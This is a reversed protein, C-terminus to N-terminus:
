TPYTRGKWRNGLKLWGRLGSYILIGLTLIAGPLQLWVTTPAFAQRQRILGDCVLGWVVVGMSLSTLIADGQLLGLVLIIWPVLRIGLQALTDAWQPAFLDFSGKGWGEWIEALGRYMRTSFLATGNIFRVKRGAQHFAQALAIDEFIQQRVPGKSGMAQAHTGVAEYAKRRVLIFQGNAAIMDLGLPSQRNLLGFIIPQVAQEWLGVADQKATLSLLDVKRAEAEALASALGQPALCTDADVFLIWDGTAQAVGQMLAYCKGTWGTVLPQGSLCTVQSYQAVVAGTGDTSNDDVVLIQHAPFEQKVLADLCRPLNLQENRAPIVVTVAAPGQYTQALLKPERRDRARDAVELVGWFVVVTLLIAYVAIM